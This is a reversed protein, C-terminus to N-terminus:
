YDGEKNRRKNKLGLALRQGTAVKLGHNVPIHEAEWCRCVQAADLARPLSANREPHLKTVLGQAKKLHIVGSDIPFYKCKKSQLHM